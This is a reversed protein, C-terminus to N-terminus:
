YNTITDSNPTTFEIYGAENEASVRCYITRGLLDSTITFARRTAGPITAGGTFWQYTLTIPETGGFVGESVTVSSGVSYIGTLVPNAVITPQETQLIRGSETNIEATASSLTTFFTDPNTPDLTPQQIGTFTSIQGVVGTVDNVLSGFSGQLENNLSSLPGAVDSILGNLEGRLDNSLDQAANIAGQLEQIASTITSMSSSAASLQGALKTYAELQPLANSLALKKLYKVIAFPNPGPLSLLPLIDSSIKGMEKNLQTKIDAVLSTCSKLHIKLVEPDTNKSIQKSLNSVHETNFNEVIM